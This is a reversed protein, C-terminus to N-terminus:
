ELFHVLLSRLSMNGRGDDFRQHLTELKESMAESLQIILTANEDENIQNPNCVRSDRINFYDRCTFPRVPYVICLGNEDQLACHRGLQYFCSLLLNYPDDIEDSSSSYESMKEEVINGLSGLVEADSRLSTIIPEIRYHYNEKLYRSIIIAEFSNVDEVWHCCCHSCGARCVANIGSAALVEYQFIDYLKYIEQFSDYFENDSPALDDRKILNDLIDEISGLISQSFETMVFCPPSEYNETINDKSNNM